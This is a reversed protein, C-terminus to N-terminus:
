KEAQEQKISEQLEELEAELNAIAGQANQFAYEHDNRETELESRLKELDCQAEAVQLKHDDISEQQAKIAIKLADNEKVLVTKEQALHINEDVATSALNPDLQSLQSTLDKM